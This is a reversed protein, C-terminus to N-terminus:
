PAPRPPLPPPDIPHNPSPPSDIPHSPPDIPYKPSSPPIQPTTSPPCFPTGAGVAGGTISQLEEATLGEEGGDEDESKSMRLVHHAELFTESLLGQPAGPPPM